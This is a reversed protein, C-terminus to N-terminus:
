LLNSSSVRVSGRSEGETPDTNTIINLKIIQTQRKL